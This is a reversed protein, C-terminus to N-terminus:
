YNSEIMLWKDNINNKERQKTKVLEACHCLFFLTTAARAFYISVSRQAINSQFSVCSPSSFFCTALQFFIVVTLIFHETVYFTALAMLFIAYIEEFALRNNQSVYNHVHKVYPVAKIKLSFYVRQVSNKTLSLFFYRLINRYPKGISCFTAATAVVVVFHGLFFIIKSWFTARIWIEQICKLIIKCNLLHKKRERERWQQQQRHDLRTRDTSQDATFVRAGQDIAIWIEIM